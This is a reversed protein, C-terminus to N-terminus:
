VDDLRLDVILIIFDNDQVALGTVNWHCHELSVHHPHTLIDLSPDFRSENPEKSLSTTPKVVPLTRYFTVIMSM